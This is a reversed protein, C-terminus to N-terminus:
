GSPPAASATPCSAAPSAAPYFYYVGAIVPFLMGGILTHHLHAVIFYSDHAQWDFPALAVMVGTLGGAVFIALAGAVFLM